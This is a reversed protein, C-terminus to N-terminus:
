LYGQVQRSVRPLADADEPSTNILEVAFPYLDFRLGDPPSFEGRFVLTLSTASSVQGGNQVSMSKGSDCGSTLEVEAVVYRDFPIDHLSGAERDESGVRVLSGADGFSVDVVKGAQGHLRLSRLCLDVSHIGPVAIAAFSLRVDSMAAHTAEIPAEAACATVFLAILAHALFNKRGWAM